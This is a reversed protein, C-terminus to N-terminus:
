YLRRNLLKFLLLIQKKVKQSIELDSNNAGGSTTPGATEQNQFFYFVILM